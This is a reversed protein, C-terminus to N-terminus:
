GARCREPRVARRGPPERPHVEQDPDLGVASGRRAPLPLGRRRECRRQFRRYPAGVVMLDGDLAVDEGFYDGAVGDAAEVLAQTIAAPSTDGTAQSTPLTLAILALALMILLGHYYRSM